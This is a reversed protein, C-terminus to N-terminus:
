PTPEEKKPTEGGGHTVNGVIAQGGDNVSVHAVTIKQEGSSRYKKLAEMQAAFTRALKNLANSASDQQPINDVFILRRAFTMTANHIAAMQAALLAEMQDRPEIGKIISLMFNLGDEDTKKGKIGVGALQSMLGGYFDEHTTGVAQMLLAQGVMSDSHDITLHSLNDKRVEVKIRPAGKINRHDVITNMVALERPTPEYPKLVETKAVANAKKTM